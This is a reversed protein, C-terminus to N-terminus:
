EEDSPKSDEMEGRKEMRKEKMKERKEQYFGQAEERTVKGDGDADMDQFRAKAGELFEAETVIGDGDTDHKDFMYGMKKGQAPGKPGDGDCAFAPVAALALIIASSALFKKM